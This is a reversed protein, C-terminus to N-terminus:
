HFYDNSPLCSNCGFNYLYNVLTIIKVFNWGLPIFHGTPYTNESLPSLGVISINMVKCPPGLCV